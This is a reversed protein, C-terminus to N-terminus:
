QKSSPPAPTADERWVQARGLVHSGVYGNQKLAGGIGFNLICQEDEQEPGGGLQRKWPDLPLEGPSSRGAQSAQRPRAGAPARAADRILDPNVGSASCNIKACAADPAAAMADAGFALLLAALAPAVLRPADM